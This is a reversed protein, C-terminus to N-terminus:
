LVHDCDTDPHVVGVQQCQPPQAAAAARWRHHTVPSEHLQRKLSLRVVRVASAEVEREFKDSTVSCGLGIYEM